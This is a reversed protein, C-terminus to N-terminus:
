SMGKIGMMEELDVEGVAYRETGGNRWDKVWEPHMFTIADSLHQTNGLVIARNQKNMEKEFKHWTLWNKKM